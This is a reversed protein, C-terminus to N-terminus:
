QVQRIGAVADLFKEGLPTIMKSIDTLDEAVVYDVGDQSIGTHTLASLVAEYEKSQGSPRRGMSALKLIDDVAASNVAFILRRLDANSMEGRLFSAFIAALVPAKQLDDIKDIALLLTEAVRNSDENGSQIENAFAKAKARSDRDLANLFRRIKLFFIRDSISQALSAAKLATGLVPVDKLIPDKFVEDWAPELLDAALGAVQDVIKEGM